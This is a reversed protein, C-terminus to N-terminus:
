SIYLVSNEGESALKADLFSSLHNSGEGIAIERPKDEKGAWFADCFQPGLQLVHLLLAYTVIKDGSLPCDVSVMYIPKKVKARLSEVAEPEFEAEELFILGEGIHQFVQSVGLWTEVCNGLYILGPPTPIIERPDTSM